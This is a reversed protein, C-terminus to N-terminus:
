KAVGVDKGAQLAFKNDVAVDTAQPEKLEGSDLRTKL